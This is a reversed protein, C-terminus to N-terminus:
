YSEDIYDVVPSGSPAIVQMLEPTTFTRSEGAKLLLGNSSSVTAEGVYVSLSTDQNRVTLLRRAANSAVLTAPSGSATVQNNTSSGSLIKVNLPTTLNAQDTAITVRPSGTGTNGAGMLPTVGNIQAVNVAANADPTVLLKTMSAAGQVTIVDASATGATGLAPQKAATALTASSVPQTVASGDVKWATTNATNGPQVTWTGSQSAPIAKGGTIGQVSVAKTADSGANAQVATQNAASADGGGGSSINRTNTEILKLWTNDSAQTPVPSTGMNPVPQAYSLGAVAVLMAALFLKRM